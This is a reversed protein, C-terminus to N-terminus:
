KKSFSGDSNQVYTDNGIQFTVATQPAISGAGPLNVTSSDPFLAQYNEPGIYFGLTAANNANLSDKLAAVKATNLGEVNTIDPFIKEYDAAEQPGFAVGTMGKRYTILAQLIRSKIYSANPDTTEGIKNAVNVISGSILNPSFGSLNKADNLAKTIDDMAALAQTRGVAQNQQDAPANALATRVIYDRAAPLNGQNIYGQFVANAQASKQVGLGATANAFANIYPANQTTAVIPVSSQAEANIKAVNANALRISAQAQLHDDIAKQAALPDSQYQGVLGMVKQLYNPDNPDLKLAQQANYQAAPDSPNNKMAAIALGQGSKFDDRQNNIQTQRDSLQTTLLASRKAEEKSLTPAIAALLAQQHKIEQEQADFKVQAAKDAADKALSYKGQAAFLASKATLAQTAIAGQKIQNKRLEAATIPVLGAATIGRGEANIQSQNPITYDAENQLATAQNNLAEIQSSLDNVTSALAPVGGNAEQQSQQTALSTSDGTLAAIRQLISSQAAETPTDATAKNIISKPTPISTNIAQYNDLPNQTPIQVPTQPTQLSSLSIPQATTSITKLGGQYYGFGQGGSIDQFSPATYKTNTNDAPPLIVGNSNNPDLTTGNVPTIM